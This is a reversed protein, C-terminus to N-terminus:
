RDDRPKTLLDAVTAGSWTKRRAWAALAVPLVVVLITTLAGQQTESLDLGFSSVLAVVAGALATVGARNLLPERSDPDPVHDSM